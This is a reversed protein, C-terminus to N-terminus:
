LEKTSQLEERRRVQERFFPKEEESLHPLVPLDFRILAHQQIWRMIPGVKGVGSFFRAVLSCHCRRRRRSNLQVTLLLSGDIIVRVAVRAPKRKKAAIHAKGAVSIQSM